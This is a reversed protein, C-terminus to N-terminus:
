REFQEIPLGPDASSQQGLPHRLGIHIMLHDTLLRTDESLNRLESWSRHQGHRFVWTGSTWHCVSRLPALRQAFEETSLVGHAEVLGDMVVGLSVIGVSHTLRSRRPPLRWAEEFVTAVASWYAVLLRVMARVDGGGEMDRYDYLVGDSLSNEIMRRVANSKVIGDPTSLTRIRGRFPSDPEHNLLEVLYTPFRRRRLPLPVEGVAVPLLEDILERRLPKASNVLLFQLRHEDVSDSIFAGVLFPFSEVAADNVAACRQQGDVLWGPKDIEEWSEDVPIVLTGWRTGVERRRHRRRAPEFRVRSDFAVVLSNPMLPDRSELYSRIAAVHSLEEPRQYGEIGFDASRRIRAVATFSRLKKGDVAFSYVRHPGQHVELAPLRLENRHRVM